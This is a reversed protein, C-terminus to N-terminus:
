CTGSTSGCIPMCGRGVVVASIPLHRGSADAIAMVAVTATGQFRGKQLPFPKPDM